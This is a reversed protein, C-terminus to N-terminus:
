PTEADIADRVPTLAKIKAVRQAPTMGPDSVARVICALLAKYANEAKAARETMAALEVAGGQGTSKAPREQGEGAADGQGTSKAPREQGEEAEDAGDTDQGKAAGTAAAVPKDLLRLGKAIGQLSVGRFRKVTDAHAEWARIRKEVPVALVASIAKTDTGSLIGPDALMRKLGGRKNAAEMIRPDVRGALLNMAFDAATEGATKLEDLLVVPVLGPNRQEREAGKRAFTVLVDEKGKRAAKVTTSKTKSATTANM